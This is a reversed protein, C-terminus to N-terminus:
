EDIEDWFHLATITRLCVNTGRKQRQKVWSLARDLYIEHVTIDEDEIGGGAEVKTCHTAQFMIIQESTLGSSTAGKFIEEIYGAKYGTEELLERKAATLPEEGDDIKGAPFEITPGGLADRHQEILIVKGDATTPVVAVCSNNGEREVFEWGNSHRTIHIHKGQWVIENSM